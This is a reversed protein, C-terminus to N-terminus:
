RMAILTSRSSLLPRKKHGLFLACNSEGSVDLPDTKPERGAAYGFREVYGSRDAVAGVAGDLADDFAGRIFDVRKDPRQLISHAM